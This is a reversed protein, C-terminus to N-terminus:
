RAVQRLEGGIVQLRVANGRDRLETISGRRSCRVVHYRDPADSFPMAMLAAGRPGTLLYTGYRPTPGQAIYETTGIRLNFTTTPTTEM